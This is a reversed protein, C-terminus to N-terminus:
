FESSLVKEVTAARAKKGSYVFLLLTPKLVPFATPNIAWEVPDFDFGAFLVRRQIEHATLGTLEPVYREINSHERWFRYGFDKLESGGPDTWEPLEIMRERTLLDYKLLNRLVKTDKDKMTQYFQLLYEYLDKDKHSCQDFGREKWWNALQEFLQFPDPFQAFLYQFSFSFRGSNYYRELLDEIVKLKLLERYSIWLNGMVEYPTEATFVYGSEAARERLGSGKLLKLFGLQLRDPKVAMSDNFTKGFSTYDEGPLGAILDLHVFVNRNKLLKTVQRSLKVFDMRRQILELARPNTTQIGIEFQLLGPPAAKLIAISEDDLRDGVIEFHFNTKGPHEILLRWIRKAHDPDCNFSRDVLKVQAIGAEVFHLLEERAREWPFYRVRNPAGPRAEHASLCYRCHFPCGRSTEYYVLKQRFPTLDRPYPFPLISLDPIFPRSENRIIATDRRFVLGRISSWDPSNKSIEALWEKFTLEGEGVVIFDVAPNQTLIEEPGASVESGGLIMITEPAVAKIRRCIILISEINWINCSFAIVKARENYIEGCVWALDQNINFERFFLGPYDGRCYQYLYWLSLSTHVFKANLTTLLIKM